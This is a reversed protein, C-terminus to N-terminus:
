TYHTIVIVDIVRKEGDPIASIDAVAAEAMARHKDPDRLLDDYQARLAPSFLLCVLLLRINPSM